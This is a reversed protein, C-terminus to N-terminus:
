EGEFLDNVKFASYIFVLAFIWNWASLNKPVELIYGACLILLVSLFLSGLYKLIKMKILQM